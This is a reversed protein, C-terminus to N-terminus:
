EFHRLRIAQVRGSVATLVGSQSGMRKVKFFLFFYFIFELEM